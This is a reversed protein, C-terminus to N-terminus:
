GIRVEPPRTQSRNPAPKPSKAPENSASDPDLLNQIQQQQKWLVAVMRPELLPVKAMSQRAQQTTAQNLLLIVFWAAALGAWALPSPWLLERLFEGLGRRWPRQAEHIRAAEADRLIQNRWGEPLSRLTQNSLRQEFEDMPDTNGPETYNKM